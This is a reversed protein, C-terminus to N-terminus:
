PFWLFASIHFNLFYLLFKHLLIIISPVQHLIRNTNILFIKLTTLIFSSNPSRVSFTLDHLILDTAIMNALIWWLKHIHMAHHHNSLTQNKYTRILEHIKELFTSDGAEKSEFKTLLSALRPDRRLILEPISNHTSTFWSLPIANWLFPIYSMRDLDEILPRCFSTLTARYIDDVCDM